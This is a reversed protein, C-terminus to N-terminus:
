TETSVTWGDRSRDEEKKEWTTGVGSDKTWCVRPRAEKLKDMRGRDQKGVGICLIHYHEVELRERIEDNRM